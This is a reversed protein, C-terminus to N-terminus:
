GGKGHLNYAGNVYFCGRTEMVTVYLCTCLQPKLRRKGSSECPLM